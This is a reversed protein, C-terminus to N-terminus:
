IEKVGCPHAYKEQINKYSHLIVESVRIEGAAIRERFNDLFPTNEQSPEDCVLSLGEALLERFVAGASYVVSKDPVPTLNAIMGTFTGVPIRNIVCEWALVGLNDLSFYNGNSLNLLIFEGDIRQFIIDENNPKYTDKVM